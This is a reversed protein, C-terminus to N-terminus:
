SKPRPFPLKQNLKKALEFDRSAWDEWFGVPVVGKLANTCFIAKAKKMELYTIKKEQVSYGLKPLQTIVWSRMTGLLIHDKPTIVTKGFVVFINTIGGELLNQNEDFVMVDFFIKECKQAYYKYRESNAKATPNDRLCRDSVLRVGEQYISEPLPVFPNVIIKWDKASAEIKIRWDKQPNHLNLIEQLKTCIHPKTCNQPLEIDLTRASHFLRDLHMELQFIKHQDFTRFTEFVYPEM